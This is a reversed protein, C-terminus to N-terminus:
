NLYCENWLQIQKDSERKKPIGPWKLWIFGNIAPGRIASGRIASGRIASGSIASGYIDTTLRLGGSEWRFYARVLSKDVGNRYMLNAQIFYGTAVPATTVPATM